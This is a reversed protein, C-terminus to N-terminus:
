INKGFNGDSCHSCSVKFSQGILQFKDGYTLFSCKCNKRKELSDATVLSNATTIRVGVITFVFLRSSTDEIALTKKIPTLEITFLHCPHVIIPRPDSLFINCLQLIATKLNNATM